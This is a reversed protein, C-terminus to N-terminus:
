TKDGLEVTVKCQSIYTEIGQAHYCDLFYKYKCTFRVEGGMGFIRNMWKSYATAHGWGSLMMLFQIIKKDMEMTTKDNRVTVTVTDLDDISSEGLMVLNKKFIKVDKNLNAFAGEFTNLSDSVKDIFSISPQKTAIDIMHTHMGVHMSMDGITIATYDDKGKDIGTTMEEHLTVSYIAASIELFAKQQKNNLNGYSPLAELLIKLNDSDVEVQMHRCM